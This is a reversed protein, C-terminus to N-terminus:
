PVSSGLSSSIICLMACAAMSGCSVSDRDCLTPRLQVLQGTVLGTHNISSPHPNWQLYGTRSETRSMMFTARCDIFSRCVACSHSCYMSMISMILLPCEQPRFASTVPTQVHVSQVVYQGVQCSCTVIEILRGAAVPM